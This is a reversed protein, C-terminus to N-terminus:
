CYNVFTTYLNDKPFLPWQRPTLYPGGPQSQITTSKVDVKEIQDGSLQSNTEWVHHSTNLVVNHSLSQGHNARPINSVGTPNQTAWDKTRQMPNNNKGWQM